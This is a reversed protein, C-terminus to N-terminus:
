RELLHRHIFSRVRQSNHRNVNHGGFPYVGIEKDTSAIRNYAAFITEPPCITDKLGVSMFVPMTLREAFHVIDFYSLTALISDLKEPFLDAFAALETLSGTSYMIGYDMHCMNPVSAACVAAKGSLAATILALGGGQSAGAVAIRSRDIEPQEAVWDVARISDVTIAKYYSRDRDAVGQSVWGSTMGTDSPLTNGTEGGQGRVDVAFVALGMMLWIAYEEPMGKSGHYGHFLVVCPVPKTDRFPPLLYWGHIPTDDFGNYKVKYVECHPMFPSDMRTKQENFPKSRVQELTNEWYDNLDSPAYPESLYQHLDNLRRNLANM